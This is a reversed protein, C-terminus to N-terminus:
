EDEEEEDLPCGPNFAGVYEVDRCTMQFSGDVYDGDPLPIDDSIEDFKSMAEEISDAEIHVVGCVEWTVPIKIDM